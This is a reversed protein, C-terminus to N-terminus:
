IHVRYAGRYPETKVSDEETTTGANRDAAVGNKVHDESTKGVAKDGKEEGDVAKDNAEKEDREIGFETSVETRLPIRKEIFTSLTAFLGFAIAGYWIHRFADTYLDIIQQHDRGPLSHFFESNPQSYAGNSVNARVEPSDIMTLNDSIRNNFILGPIVFGWIFGYSRLFAHTGTSTAVDSEPVSSQIPPLVTTILFGLGVAVFLQWFVWKVTSTNADMTSLLGLGLTCLASGGFHVGQYEGTQYLLMGAIMAGPIYFTNYPLANIGARVASTGKVAQFYYPIFYSTWETLISNLFVLLFGVAATRNTFLRAPMTPEKCWRSNQHIHFFIWGCGGVVLPVIIRASSWPYVVGGMILGILMACTSAILIFNGLYDIRLLKNKWLADKPSKLRLVVAAIILALAGFPLSLYLSWRWTSDTTFAGGVTPGITVGVSSFMLIISLYKGRERASMLDSTIVELIVMIGGAGLGQITRGVILMALGNAGGSLGSGLTFFALSVLMPWRRGFINSAQACLPQIATCAINYSAPVWIYSQEADLFRVITPLVTSLITANINAAFAALCLSLFVLWFRADKPTEASTNATTTDAPEAVTPTAPAPAAATDVAAPKESATAM